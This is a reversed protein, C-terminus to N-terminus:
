VPVFTRNRCSISRVEGAVFDVISTCSEDIHEHKVSNSHPNVFVTRGVGCKKACVLNSKSDEILVIQDSHVNYIESLRHYIGSSFDDKRARGIDKFADIGHTYNQILYPNYGLRSMMTHLANTTTHSYFCVDTMQALSWILSPLSSDKEGTMDLNSVMDFHRHMAHYAALGFEDKLLLFGDAYLDWSKMGIEMSENYPINTYAHIVMAGVEGMRRYCKETHTYLLGDCDFVYVWPKNDQNEPSLKRQIQNM